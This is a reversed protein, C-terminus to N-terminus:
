FPPQISTQPQHQRPSVPRYKEKNKTPPPHPPSNITINVHVSDQHWPLLIKAICTSDIACPPFDFFLNWRANMTSLFALDVFIQHGVHPLPLPAWPVAFVAHQSRSGPLQLLVHAHSPLFDLQRFIRFCLTGFSWLQPSVRNFFAFLSSKSSLHLGNLLCNESVPALSQPKWHHFVTRYVGRM